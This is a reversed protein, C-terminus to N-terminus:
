YNYAHMTTLSLMYLIRSTSAPYREKVVFMAHCTIGGLMFVQAAYVGSPWNDPIPVRLTPTWNCGKLYASDPVAQLSVAVSDYFAYRVNTAGYRFIQLQVKPQNCSFCISVTDGQLVSTPWAYGDCTQARAVPAHLGLCFAAALVLGSRQILPLSRMPM